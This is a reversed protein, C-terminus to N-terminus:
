LLGNFPQFRRQFETDSEFWPMNISYISNAIGWYGFEVVVRQRSAGDIDTTATYEFVFKTEDGEAAAVSFDSFTWGNHPGFLGAAELEDVWAEADAITHIQRAVFSPVPDWTFLPM